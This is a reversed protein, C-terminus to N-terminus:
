INKRYIEKDWNQISKTEESNISISNNKYLYYYTELVELIKYCKYKSDAKIYINDHIHIISNEQNINTGLYVIIDPTYPEISKIESYTQLEYPLKYLIENNECITDYLDIYNKLDLFLNNKRFSNYTEIMIKKLEELTDATFIVGHNKLYIINDKNYHKYIERALDYGPKIYNIAKININAKCLELNILTPHLHVVYKKLFIHFYTEISPNLNNMLYKKLDPEDNSLFDINKIKELDLISYGIDKSVDALAYGSSKILLQNNYKVSINGGGYQVLESLGGLMRCLYIFDEM